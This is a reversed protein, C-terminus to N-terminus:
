RRLAQHSKISLNRLAIKFAENLVEHVNVGNLASIRRVPIGNFRRKIMEEIANVRESTNRDIKNIAVIINDRGFDNVINSLLNIQSNVGYYFDESPDLLFLIGHALHKAAIYAKREIPNLENFPRDLIGPTDVIQVRIGQIETHGLIIDKTTFPFPAIAPKASSIRNVLTSKGVQPMGAIVIIPSEFDFCPIRSLLTAANRLEDLDDRSRRFISLVRGIFERVLSRAEKADISLKVRVRYERWLRKVIRLYKNFMAIRHQYDSIGAIKLLELYFDAIGDSPLKLINNLTNNVYQYIKDIKVMYIYIFKRKIGKPVSIRETYIRLVRERVDEFSPIYVNRVRESICEEEM